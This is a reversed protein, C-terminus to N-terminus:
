NREKFFSSVINNKLKKVVPRPLLKLLLKDAKRQEAAIKRSKSSVENIFQQFLFLDPNFQFNLCVYALSFSTSVSWISALKWFFYFVVITVIIIAILGATTLGFEVKISDLNKDAIKRHFPLCDNRICCNRNHQIM